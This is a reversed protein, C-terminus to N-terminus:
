AEGQDRSARFYSSWIELDLFKYLEGVFFSKNRGVGALLEEIADADILGKGALNGSSLTDRIFERNGLTM